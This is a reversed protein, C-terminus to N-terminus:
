LEISKKAVLPEFFRVISTYDVILGWGAAFDNGHVLGVLQDDLTVAGGSEGSLFTTRVYYRHPAFANVGRGLPLAYSLETPRVCYNRGGTLGHTTVKASDPPKADRLRIGEIPVARRLRILALDSQDDTAVVRGTEWTEGFRVRPVARQVAEGADVVHANTLVFCVGSEGKGVVVGSGRQEGFKPPVSGDAPM